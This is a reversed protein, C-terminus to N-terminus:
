DQRFFALNEGKSTFGYSFDKAAPLPQNNGFRCSHFRSSQDYYTSDGGSDTSSEVPEDSNTSSPESISDFEVPPEFSPTLPRDLVEDEDVNGFIHPLEKAIFYSFPFEDALCRTPGGFVRSSTESPVALPNGAPMTYYGPYRLAATQIHNTEPYQPIIRREPAPYAPYFQQIPQFAPLVSPQSARIPYSMSPFWKSPVSPFEAARSLSSQSQSSSSSSRPLIPRFRSPM